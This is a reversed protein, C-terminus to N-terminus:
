EDRAPVEMLDHAFLVPGPFYRRLVATTAAEDNEGPVFHTLVLAKVNAEKAMRGTEDLTVHARANRLGGPAGPPGTRGDKKIVGGSDIILYDADRALVPLTESYVLDGSIVISRGGADFRLAVTYISHNVHATRVRIGGITFDEGGTLETLTYDKEADELTKGIRGLRYRIDEDYNALASATIAAMPAPGAVVFKRGGLLAHIFIPVFEENHDLHQHTFFLGDLSEEPVQAQHLRAQAGNGMDVLIRTDGYRILVSANAREARYEPSGSGLITAILEPQEATPAPSAPQPQASVTACSALLMAAAAFM